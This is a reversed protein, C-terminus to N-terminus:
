PDHALEEWPFDWPLRVLNHFRLIGTGKEEPWIWDLEIRDGELTKPLNVVWRGVADRAVALETTPSGGKLKFHVGGPAKKNQDEPLIDLLIRSIPAANLPFSITCDGETRLDIGSGKLAPM